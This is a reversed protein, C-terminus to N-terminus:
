SSKSDAELEALLAKFAPEFRMESEFHRRAGASYAPYDRVIEAVAGAIQEPSSIALGSHHAPLWEDWGPLSTMVVPKGLMFLSSIKGASKGIYRINPSDLDAYFAFGLDCSAFVKSVQSAEVPDGSIYVRDRNLPMGFFAELEALSKRHRSHFVVVWGEPLARAAQALERSWFEASISGAYLAIRTEPPLGFKEHFYGGKATSENELQSNPLYRFRSMPIGNDEAIVRARGEDQILLYRAARSARRELAKYGKYMRHPDYSAIIELSYYMQPVGWLKGLLWAAGAGAPDVGVVLDYRRGRGGRRAFLLFRLFNPLRRALGSKPALAHVRTAGGFRVANHRDGSELIFVDTEVGSEALMVILNRVAPVSDLYPVPYLIAVRLPRM